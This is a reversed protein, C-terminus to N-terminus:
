YVTIGRFWCIQEARGIGVRWTHGNCVLSAPTLNYTTGAGFQNPGV